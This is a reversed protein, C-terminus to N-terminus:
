TKASSDDYIVMGALYFRHSEGVMNRYDEASMSGETHTVGIIHQRSHVALNPLKRVPDVAVLDGQHDVMPHEFIEARALYRVNYAPTQGTNEILFDVRGARLMYVDYANRPKVSIYARLQLEATKEASKVLRWTALWLGMTALFLLWEGYRVGFFEGPSHGGSSPLYLLPLAILFWAALAILAVLAIKSDSTKPM